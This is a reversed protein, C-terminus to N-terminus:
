TTARPGVDSTIVQAVVRQLQNLERAVRRLERANRLFLESIRQDFIGEAAAMEMQGAGGRIASQLARLHALETRRDAKLYREELEQSFEMPASAPKQNVREIWRISKPKSKGSTRKRVM